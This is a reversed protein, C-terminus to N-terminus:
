GDGTGELNRVSLMTDAPATGGCPLLVGDGTSGSARSQGPLETPPGGDELEGILGIDGGFAPKPHVRSNWLTYGGLQVCLALTDAGVDLVEQVVQRPYNDHLDKGYSVGDYLVTCRDYWPIM